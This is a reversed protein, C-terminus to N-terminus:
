NTAPSIVNNLDPNVYKQELEGLTCKQIQWKTPSAFYQPYDEKEAEQNKGLFMKLIKGNSAYQVSVVHKGSEVIGYGNIEAVYGVYTPGHKSASIGNVLKQYGGSAMPCYVSWGYVGHAGQRSEGDTIFICKHGVGMFNAEFFYIQTRPTYHPVADGQSDGSKIVQYYELLPDKVVQADATFLNLTIYISVIILITKM